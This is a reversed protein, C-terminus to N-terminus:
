LKVVSRKRRHASSWPWEQPERALRAKVPNFAIYARIREFERENRSFHDYSERHWFPKGELGLLANAVKATKGKLRKMITDVEVRPTIFLHVHNPMVVYEHLVYEFHTPDDGTEIEACVAEAIRPDSLWRPGRDSIDYLKDATAFKTGATQATRATSGLGM